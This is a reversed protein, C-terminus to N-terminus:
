GSRLVPYLERMGSLLYHQRRNWSAPHDESFLLSRWPMIGGQSLKQLGRKRNTMAGLRDARTLLIAWRAGTSLVTTVCFSLLFLLARFSPTTLLVAFCGPFPVLALNTGSGVSEFDLTGSVDDVGRRLRVTALASSGATLSM